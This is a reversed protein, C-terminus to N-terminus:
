RPFNWGVVLKLNPVDGIGLKLESFFRNGSAPAAAGVILGGGVESDSDGGISEDRDEFVIGLGFGAYPRWRSREVEFHYHGDFNMAISTRDDGFGFELGPDFTINRAIEGIVIQGGLVLQDPGSSFGIRPGWANVSTQAHAVAGATLLCAGALLGTVLTRVAPM